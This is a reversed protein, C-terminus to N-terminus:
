LATKMIPKEILRYWLLSILVIILPLCLLFTLLAAPSTIGNEVRIRGSADLLFTHLLYISYSANGVAVLWTPPTLKTQELTLVLVLASMGIMGFSAVRMVEVRDFYPSTMGLSFGACILAICLPLTLRPREFILAQKDYVHAILAGGLFEIGLGTFVYRLPQLGNYVGEQNTALWGIGWIVLFVIICVAAKIQYRLPLLVILGIWLYFYIEMSLSWAPPLLNDWINPYLLLTSLLMKKIPPLREQYVFMTVLAILLLVPWYGLYIRLLRKKIFPRFGRAPM